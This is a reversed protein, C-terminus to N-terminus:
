NPLRAGRMRRACLAGISLAVLAASGPEPVNQVAQIQSESLVTDFFRVEDVLGRLVRSGSGAEFRAAVDTTFNGVTLTGSKGAPVNLVSGRDYSNVSDLTAATIGNGFYYTVTGDFTDSPDASDYIVAFFVWNSVDTNPDITLRAPSSFPGPGPFDPAENVSFRLRGNDVQVVEFGGRDSGFDGPWTTVIRNGGPGIQEDRLNVWGTVTFAPLGFTPAATEAPFDIARSGDAGGIPGFDISSVNGRPAFPGTPLNSSFVPFGNQEAFIGSGGSTGVNTTTVGTGEDFRLDVVTAASLQGQTSALALGIAFIASTVCSHIPLSRAPFNM